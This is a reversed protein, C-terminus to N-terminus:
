LLLVVLLPSLFLLSFCITWAGDLRLIRCTKSKRIETEVLLLPFIDVVLLLRWSVPHISCIFPASYASFLSISLRISLSVLLSNTSTEISRSMDPCPARMDEKKAISWCSEPGKKIRREVPLISWPAFLLEQVLPYLRRESIAVWGGGGHGMINYLLLGACSNIPLAVQDFYFWNRGRMWSLLSILLFVKPEIKFASQDRQRYAAADLHHRFPQGHIVLSLSAFSQTWISQILRRERSQTNNLCGEVLNSRDKVRRYFWGVCVHEM